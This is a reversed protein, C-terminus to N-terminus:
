MFPGQNSDRPQETQGHVQLTTQNGEEGQDMLLQRARRRDDRTTKLKGHGSHEKQEQQEDLGDDEM